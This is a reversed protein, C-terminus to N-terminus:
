SLKNILKKLEIRAAATIIKESEVGRKLMSRDVMLAAYARELLALELYKKGEAQNKVEPLNYMRDLWRSREQELIDSTLNKAHEMNLMWWHYTMCIDFFLMRWGWYLNSLVIVEGEQTKLLSTWDFHGHVFELKELSTHEDIIKVAQQALQQDESHKLQDTQSWKQVAKRWQATKEKYSPLKTPKKLWAPTRCNKRYDQYLQFYLELESEAAPHYTLVSQGSVSEFILAEFQRDDNWPLYAYIHPPRLKQSRNHKSFLKIIEAESTEPQTGQIKLVAPVTKGDFSIKGAVHVAGIKGSNWWESQRMKKLNPSFGTTSIIQELIRQWRPALDIGADMMGAVDNQQPKKSM